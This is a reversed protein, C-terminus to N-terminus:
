PCRPQQNDTATYVLDSRKYVVRLTFPKVERSQCKGRKKRIALTRLNNTKFVCFFSKSVHGSGSRHGHTERTRKHAYDREPIRVLSQRISDTMWGPLWAHMRGNGMVHSKESKGSSHTIFRASNQLREDSSHGNLLKEGHSATNWKAEGLPGCQWTSLTAFIMEQMPNSRM